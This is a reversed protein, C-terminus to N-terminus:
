SDYRKTVLMTRGEPMSGAPTGAWQALLPPKEEM